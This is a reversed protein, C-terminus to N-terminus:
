PVLRQYAVFISSAPQMALENVITNVNNMGRVIQEAKQKSAEDPVEGTLLVRRNFVTVNVHAQDPLNQNIQAIAKVQIERDETQAGLTRRDTAM